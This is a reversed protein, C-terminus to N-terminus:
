LSEVYVYIICASMEETTEETSETNETTLIRKKSYPTEIHALRISGFAIRTNAEYTEGGAAWGSGTVSAM